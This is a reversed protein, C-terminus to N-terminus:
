RRVIAEPIIESFEQKRYRAPLLRALEEYSKKVWRDYVGGTQARHVNSEYASIAHEEFPFAQEELLFEYQELQQPTLDGPRDSELLANRFSEFVRGIQYSAATTIEAIRLEAAQVYLDIVHDLMKRKRALSEELPAALRITEYQQAAYGAVILRCKGIYFGGRTAGLDMGGYRDLFQQAEVLVHEHNQMFQLAVIVKYRADVTREFDGSYRDAYNRYARAANSWDQRKEYLNAATWQADGALKQDVAMEAVREYQVAARLADGSEEFIQAIRVSAHSVYESNPYREALTRYALLAGQSNKRSMAISGADFLAIPAIESKPVESQVRMFASEAEALKGSNKLTEAHKYLSSAFVRRLEEQEGPTPVGPSSVLDRYVSAAKEFSKQEFYKDAILRQSQYTLLDQSPTRMTKLQEAFAVAEEQKGAALMKQQTQLMLDGVQSTLPHTPYQHTLIQFIAMAEKKRDAQLAITGADFLAPPAVESGPVERHVRLFAAEADRAQGADRLLEARKYLSSSWLRKLNQREADSLGTASTFLLRYAAAAEEFSRAEFLVDAILRQAKFAIPHRSPLYIKVIEEAQARAEPLEGAAFYVETGKWLVEPVRSDAQFTQAFRRTNDALKTATANGRLNTRKGLSKDFAVIAAYGAEVSDKHFFYGYATKEYEMAAEDHRGLEFLAEALLFNIRASEGDQPFSALFKRYWLIANEYDEPQKSQQAESHFFLALQNTLKKYIPRVKSRSNASATNHWASGEGFNQVFQMRAQNASNLAKMRTYADIVEMAFIPAQDHNPYQKLFAEYAAVGDRPRKQVQFLEGLKRYILHEYDRQGVKKFYDVVTKPDFHDKSKVSGLSAFPFAMSRMVELVFDWDATTMKEPDLQLAEGERRTRKQDAIQIFKALADRYEGKAYHTWGMKYLSREQYEDDKSDIVQGYARLARDFDGSDYYNEGLRFHVETAYASGPFKDVLQQLLSAAADPDGMDDKARALQYLVRDNEPREPFDKILTEYIRISRAHDVLPLAPKESIKNQQFLRLQQNYDQAGQRYARDELKIYLDGLRQLATARLETKEGYFDLLFGEHEKLTGLPKRQKAAPIQDQMVQHVVERIRGDEFGYPMKQKSCGTLLLVLSCALWAGSKVPKITREFNDTRM